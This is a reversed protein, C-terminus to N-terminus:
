PPPGGPLSRAFELFAAGAARALPPPDPYGLTIPSAGQPTAGITVGGGAAPPPPQSVNFSDEEASEASGVYTGGFVRARTRLDYIDVSVDADRGTVLIKGSKSQVSPPADRDSNRVKDRTVRALVGYRALGGLSNAARVLWPQGPVGHIQYSLLLLRETSDDVAAAARAASVVPIDRRTTTLVEELAEMLPRRVQTIENVQVVGMILLGGSRLAEATFGPDVQKVDAVHACGAWTSLSAALLAAVLWKRRM